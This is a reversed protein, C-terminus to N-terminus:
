QCSVVLFKSLYHSTPAHGPEFTAISKSLISRLHAFHYIKQKHLM